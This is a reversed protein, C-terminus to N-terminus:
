PERRWTWVSYGGITFYDSRPGIAMFKDLLVEAWVPVGLLGKPIPKSMPPATFTRVCDTCGCTQQYRRRRFRRRYAQVEIEIQESDETDRPSLAAAPAFVSSWPCSAFTSSSLCTATTGGYRAPRDMRQGWKQAARFAAPRRRRRSVPVQGPRISKRVKLRLAPRPAHPERQATTQSRTARSM